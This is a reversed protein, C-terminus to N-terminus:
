SLELEDPKTLTELSVLITQKGSDIETSLCKMFREVNEHKIYQHMTLMPIRIISLGCPHTCGCSAVSQECPRRQLPRTRLGMGTMGFDEIVVKRMMGRRRRLLAEDLVDALIKAGVV